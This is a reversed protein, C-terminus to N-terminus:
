RWGAGCEPCIRCGDPERVLGTLDHACSGCRDSRALRHAIRRALMRRRVLLVVWVEFACAPVMLAFMVWAPIARVAFLIVPATTAAVVIPLGIMALRLGQRREEWSPGPMAPELAPAMGPGPLM